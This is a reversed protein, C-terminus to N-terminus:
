KDGGNQKAQSRAPAAGAKAWSTGEGFQRAVRYAKRAASEYRFKHQSNSARDTPGTPGLKALRTYTDGIHQQTRGFLRPSKSRDIANLASKFSNLAKKSQTRPFNGEALRMHAVGIQIYAEAFRDPFEIATFTQLAEQYYGMAQNMQDEIMSGTASDRYGNGMLILTSAYTERDTTPTAVELAAGYAQIARDLNEGREEIVSLAHFTKGLEIQTATYETPAADPLRYELAENFAVIAQNYAAANEEVSGIQFHARGMQHNVHGHIRPTLEEGFAFMLYNYGKLASEYRKRRFKEDATLIEEDIRAKLETRQRPRLTNEIYDTVAWTSYALAGLVLVTFQGPHRFVYATAANIVRERRRNM